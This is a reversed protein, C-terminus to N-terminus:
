ISPDNRVGRGSCDRVAYGKSKGASLESVPAFGAARAKELDSTAITHINIADSGGGCVAPFMVETMSACQSSKVTVGANTLVKASQEAHDGSYECQIANAGVYVDVFTDPADPVDNGHCAALFLSMMM